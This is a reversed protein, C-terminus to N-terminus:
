ARGLVFLVHASRNFNGKTFGQIQVNHVVFGNAVFLDRWGDITKFGCPFAMEPVGVSLANALYDIIVIADRQDAENLTLFEAFLPQAQSLAAAQRAYAPNAAIQAQPLIVDEEVILRAGPAMATAMNQLFVGRQPNTNGVHHLVAICTLTSYQYQSATGPQSFDLMQFDIADKIADTRWDLVDIGACTTFPPYQQQLFAALDGGGCGVDCYSSGTFLPKLQALRQHLKKHHKYHQYAADFAAFWMPHQPSHKRSLTAFLPFLREPQHQVAAVQHYVAHVLDACQRAVTAPQLGTAQPHHTLIAETYNNVLMKHVLGKAVPNAFATLFTRAEDTRM